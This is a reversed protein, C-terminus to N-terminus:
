YHHDVGVRLGPGDEGWDEREVGEESGKEDKDIGM